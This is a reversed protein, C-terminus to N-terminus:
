ETLEFIFKQSSECAIQRAEYEWQKLAVLASQAFPKAFQETPQSVAELVKPSNVEGKYDITFEIIVYGSHGVPSEISPYAPPVSKLPVEGECIQRAYVSECFMVFLFSFSFILNRM